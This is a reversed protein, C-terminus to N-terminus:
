GWGHGCTMVHKNHDYRLWKKEQLWKENFKRIVRVKALKPDKSRELDEVTESKRKPNHWKIPWTKDEM